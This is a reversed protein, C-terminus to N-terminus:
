AEAHMELADFAFLQLGRICSCCPSALFIVLLFETSNLAGLRAGTLIGVM